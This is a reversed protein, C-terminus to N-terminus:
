PEDWGDILFAFFNDRGLKYPRVHIVLNSYPSFSTYGTLCSFCNSMRFSDLCVYRNGVSFKIVDM